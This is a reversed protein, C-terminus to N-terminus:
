GGLLRRLLGPRDMPRVPGFIMRRMCPDLPSRRGQWIGSQTSLLRQELM